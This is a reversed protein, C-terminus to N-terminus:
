KLIKEGCNKIQMAGKTRHLHIQHEPFSVLGFGQFTMETLSLSNNKCGNDNGSIMKECSWFEGWHATTWRVLSGVWLEVGNWAITQRHEHFDLESSCHLSNEMAELSTALKTPQRWEMWRRTFLSPSAKERTSGVRLFGFTQETSLVLNTCISFHWLLFSNMRM